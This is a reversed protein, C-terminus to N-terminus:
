YSIIFFFKCAALVMVISESNYGPWGLPYVFPLPSTPMTVGEFAVKGCYAKFAATAATADAPSNRSWFSLSFSVSDFLYCPDVYFWIHQALLLFLLFLLFPPALPPFTLFLSFFQNPKPVHGCPIKLPNTHWVQGVRLCNLSLPRTFSPPLPVRWILWPM